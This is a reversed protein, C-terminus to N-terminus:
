ESSTIGAQPHECIVDLTRRGSTSRILTFGQRLTTTYSSCSRTVIAVRLSHHVSVSQFPSANINPTHKLDIPFDHARNSDQFTKILPLALPYINTNIFFTNSTTPLIYVKIIRASMSNRHKYLSRTRVTM